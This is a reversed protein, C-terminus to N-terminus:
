KDAQWDFTSYSKSRDSLFLAIEGVIKKGSTKKVQLDCNELRVEHLPCLDNSGILSFIFSM